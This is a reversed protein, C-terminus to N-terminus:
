MTEIVGHGVKIKKTHKNALSLCHMVDHRVHLTNNKQRKGQKENTKLKKAHVSERTSFKRARIWM